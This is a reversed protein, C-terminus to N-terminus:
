LGATAMVPLEVCFFIGNRVADFSFGGSRSTKQGRMGRLVQQERALIQGSVLREMPRM